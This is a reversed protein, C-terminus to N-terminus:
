FAAGRRRFGTLGLMSETIEREMSKIPAVVKWNKGRLCQPCRIRLVEVRPAKSSDREDQLANRGRVEKM